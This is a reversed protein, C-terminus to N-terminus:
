GWPAESQHEKTATGGRRHSHRRTMHLCLWVFLVRFGTFVLMDCKCLCGTMKNPMEARHRAPPGYEGLSIVKGQQDWSGKPKSVANGIIELEEGGATQPDKTVGKLFGLFPRLKRALCWLHQRRCGHWVPWWDAARPDDFRSHVRCWGRSQAQVAKQKRDLRSLFKGREHGDRRYPTWLDKPAETVLNERKSRFGSQATESIPWCLPSPIRASRHALPPM